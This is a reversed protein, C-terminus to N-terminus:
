LNDNRKRHRIKGRAANSLVGAALYPERLDPPLNRWDPGTANLWMTVCRGGCEAAFSVLSKGRKFYSGLLAGCVPCEIPRLPKLRRNLQTHINM